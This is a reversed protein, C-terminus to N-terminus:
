TLLLALACITHLIFIGVKQLARMTIIVRIRNNRDSLNQNEPDELDNEYASKVAIEDESLGLQIMSDEDSHITGEAFVGPGTAEVQVLVIPRIYRGSDSEFRQAHIDLENLHTM